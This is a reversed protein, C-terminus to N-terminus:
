AGQPQAYAAGVTDQVTRLFDPEDLVVLDFGRDEAMLEEFESVMLRMLREQADPSMGEYLVLGLVHRAGQPAIHLQFFYASEVSPYNTLVDALAERWAETPEEEPASILVTVGQSRADEPAVEPVPADGRALSVIQDRDFRQSDPSTPNLVLKAVDNQDAIMLLHFGRLAVYPLGEPEWALAADEDTFAIMLTAGTDDEFTLLPVEESDGLPQLEASEAELEPSEPAPLILMSELLAEYLRQRNETTDEEAVAHMAAVLEPNKLEPLQTM